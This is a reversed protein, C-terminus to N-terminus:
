LVQNIVSPNCIRTGDNAIKNNKVMKPLAFHLIKPSESPKAGIGGGPVLRPGQPPSVDGGSKM